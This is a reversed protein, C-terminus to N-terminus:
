DFTLTSQKDDGDVLAPEIKSGIMLLDTGVQGRVTESTLACSEPRLFGPGSETSDM